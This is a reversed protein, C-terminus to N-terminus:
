LHAGPLLNGAYIPVPTRQRNIIFHRIRDKALQITQLFKFTYSYM